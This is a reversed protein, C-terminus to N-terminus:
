DLWRYFIELKVVEAPCCFINPFLGGMAAWLMLSDGIVPGDVKEAALLWPFALIPILYRWRPAM